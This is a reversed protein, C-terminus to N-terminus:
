MNRSNMMEKEDEFIYISEYLVIKKLKRNSLGNLKKIPFYLRHIKNIKSTILINITKGIGRQGIIFKTSNSSFKKYFDAIQM